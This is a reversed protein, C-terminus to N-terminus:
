TAASTNVIRVGLGDQRGRYPNACKGYYSFRAKM